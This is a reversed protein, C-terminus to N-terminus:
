KLRKGNDIMVEYEEPFIITFSIGKSQYNMMKAMADPDTSIVYHEPLTLLEEKARQIRQLISLAQEFTINREDAYKQIYKTVACRASEQELEPLKKIRDDSLYREPYEQYERKESPKAVMEKVANSLVTKRDEPSLEKLLDLRDKKYYLYVTRLAARTETSIDKASMEKNMLIMKIIKAKKANKKRPVNSYYKYVTNRSVGTQHALETVSASLNKVAADKVAQRKPPRGGKNKSGIGLEALTAKTRRAIKLHQEQTRGNRKNPPMPIGSRSELRERPYLIWREEYAELADEIDEETFHNDEANTLAELMSLMEYCDDRLEDATVPDPNKREDYTSCKQAVISLCYLMHYRKGVRAGARIKRKMWEYFRRNEAWPHALPDREKGEQIVEKYWEPYKEMCEQLRDSKYGFEYVRFEEEVYSNLEEISVPKGTQFVRVRENKTEEGNKRRRIEAKTVTGPLRFGQYIGEYQIESDDKIDVISDNWFMRTLEKKLGQLQISNRDWLMVPQEMVYYLHVGTGSWVVLTPRPLRGLAEIHGSWLNMLGIPKGDESIRIKDLDFAMAYMVRANEATREKGAYSIPSAFVFYPSQLLQEYGQLEDTITYRRIKPRMPGRTGDKRKRGPVLLDDCVEVAIGTYKGKTFEGDADLEGSPFIQRAFEMPSIETFSEELWQVIADM